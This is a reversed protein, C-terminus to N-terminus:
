KSWNLPPGDLRKVYHDRFQFFHSDASQQAAMTAAGFRIAKQIQGDANLGAATLTAFVQKVQPDEAIKSELNARPVTADQVEQRTWIVEWTKNPMKAAFTMQVIAQKGDSNVVVQTARLGRASEQDAQRSASKLWERNAINSAAPNVGSTLEKLLSDVQSQMLKTAIPAFDLRKNETTSRVLVDSTGQFDVPKGLTYDVIAMRAAWERDDQQRSPLQATLDPPPAKLDVNRQKLERELDHVDRTEVNELKESWAWGVVRQRDATARTMKAIVSQKLFLWVFQTPDPSQTGSLTMEIRELESKLFLQLRPETTTELEKKLRGQLQEAIQKQLTAEDSTTKQYIEPLTQQLWDRSVVMTVGNADGNVVVGRVARGSKLRVVDVALQSGSVSKVPQARLPAQLLGVIGWVLVLSKVPNM